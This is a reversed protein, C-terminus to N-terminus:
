NNHHILQLQQDTLIVAPSCFVVVPSSHTVDPYHTLTVLELFLSPNCLSLIQQFLAVQHLATYETVYTDIVFYNFFSKLYFSLSM